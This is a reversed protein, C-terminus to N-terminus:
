NCGRLCQLSWDEIAQNVPSFPSLRVLFLVGYGSNNLLKTLSCYRTFVLIFLGRSLLSLTRKLWSPLVLLFWSISKNGQIIIIPPTSSEFSFTPKFSFQQDNTELISRESRLMLLLKIWWSIGTFHRVHTCIHAFYPSDIIVNQFKFHPDYVM